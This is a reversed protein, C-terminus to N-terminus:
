GGGLEIIKEVARVEVPFGDLCDPVRDEPLLDSQPMQKRGVTVIIGEQGTEIGLKDKLVGVKVSAVDMSPRRSFLDRYKDSVYVISRAKPDDGRPCVIWPEKSRLRLPPKPGSENHVMGTSMDLGSVMDEIHMMDGPGPGRGTVWVALSTIRERERERIEIPVDGICDPIRGEPPLESQPVKPWVYVIVGLERTYKGNDDRVAGTESLQYGPQRKFLAKYEDRVEIARRGEIREDAGEPDYCKWKPEMPEDRYGELGMLGAIEEHPWGMEILENIGPDDVCTAALWISAAVLLVQWVVTHVM